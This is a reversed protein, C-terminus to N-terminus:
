SLTKLTQMFGSPVQRDQASLDETSDLYRNTFFASDDSHGCSPNIHRNSQQGVVSHTRNESYVRSCHFDFCHLTGVVQGLVNDILWQQAEILECSM